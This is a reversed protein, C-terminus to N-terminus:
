DGSISGPVVQPWLRVATLQALINPPCQLAGKTPSDRLPFHTKNGSPYMQQESGHGTPREMASHWLNWCRQAERPLDLVPQTLVPSIGETRSLGCHPAPVVLAGRCHQCISHLCGYVCECININRQTQMCIAPFRSGEYCVRRTDRLM